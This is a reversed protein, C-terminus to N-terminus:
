RWPLFVDNGGNAGGLIVLHHQFVGIGYGLFNQVASQILTRGEFYKGDVDRANIQALVASGGQTRGLSGCVFFDSLSLRFDSSGGGNSEFLFVLGFDLLHLRLQDFGLGSTGIAM